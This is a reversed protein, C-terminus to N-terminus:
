SNAQLKINKKKGKKKEGGGTSKKKRRKKNFFPFKKVIYPLCEQFIGNWEAALFEKTSRGTIIWKDFKLLCGTM